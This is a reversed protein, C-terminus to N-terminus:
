LCRGGTHPGVRKLVECLKGLVQSVDCVGRQNGFTNQRSQTFGRPSLLSGEVEDLTLVLMKTAEGPQSRGVHFCCRGSEGQIM